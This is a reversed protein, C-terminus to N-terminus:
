DDREREGLMEVNSEESVQFIAGSTPM